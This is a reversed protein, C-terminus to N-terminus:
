VNPDYDPNFAFQLLEEALRTEEVKNGATQAADFQSYLTELVKRDSAIKEASATKTAENAM